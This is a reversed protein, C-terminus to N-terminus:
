GSFSYDGTRLALRRPKSSIHVFGVAFRSYNLGLYRLASYDFLYHSIFNTMQECRESDAEDVPM